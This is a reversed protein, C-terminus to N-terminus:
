PKSTEILLATNDQPAPTLSALKSSWCYKLLWFPNPLGDLKTFEHIQLKFETLFEKNHKQIHRNYLTNKEDLLM